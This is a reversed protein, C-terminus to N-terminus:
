GIASKTRYCQSEIAHIAVARASVMVSSDMGDRAVRAEARRAVAAAGPRCVARKGRGHREGSAM